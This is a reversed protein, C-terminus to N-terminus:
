RFRANPTEKLYGNFFARGSMFKKGAPRLAPFAYWGDACRVLLCDPYPSSPSPLMFEGPQPLQGPCPTEDPRPGTYPYVGPSLAVTLDELGPRQLTLCPGPWPTLGRIRAHLAHAPLTLKVLAEQKTLKAAYTALNNDQPFPRLTGALLRDLTELLLDGGESALEELLVDSTENIDIGTARQMLIPGSDLAAEIRMITVGTFTDGNIVARQVPAAGRYRPLLSAHVNVPMRAPIDLVRQPLILGYAAVLLIDPKLAALEAVARDGEPTQKFNLPQYVPLGHELALSKVESAKLQHGRGAPRDPQTYVGALELSSSTLVRELIRAAFLPTGM